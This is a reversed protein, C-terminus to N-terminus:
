FVGLSSYLLFLSVSCEAIMVLLAVSAEFIAQGHGVAATEVAVSQSARALVHTKSLTKMAADGMCQISYCHMLLYHALSLIRM